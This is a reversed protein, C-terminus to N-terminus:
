QADAGITNHIVIPQLRREETDRERLAEIFANAHAVSRAAAQGSVPIDKMFARHLMYNILAPQYTDDLEIVTAKDTIEAPIKSVAIEIQHGNGPSPPSVYFTRRARTDYTYEKATGPEADFWEQASENLKDKGIFKVMRGKIAPDTPGPSAPNRAINRIVDFLEFADAPLTQKPGAVLDIIRTDPNVDSRLQVAARQADSLYELLEAETWRVPPTEENLTRGVRTLFTSAALTGM